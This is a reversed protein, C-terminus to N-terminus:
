HRRDSAKATAEVLRPRAAAPVDGCCTGFRLPSGPFTAPFGSSARTLPHAPTLARHRGDAPCKAIAAAVKHSSTKPTSLATVPGTTGESSLTAGSITAVTASSYRTIGNRSTKRSNRREYGMPLGSASSLFSSRIGAAATLWHQLEAVLGPAGAAM